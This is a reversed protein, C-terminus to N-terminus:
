LDPSPIDALQSKYIGSMIKRLLPPTIEQFQKIVRNLGKNIESEPVLSSWKLLCDDIINCFRYEWGKKDGVYEMRDYSLHTLQINAKKLIM